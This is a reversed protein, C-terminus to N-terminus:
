LQPIARLRADLGCAASVVLMHMGLSFSNAGKNMSVILRRSFM